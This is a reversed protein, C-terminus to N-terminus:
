AYEVLRGDVLEFMRRDIPEDAGGSQEVIFEGFMGAFEEDGPALLAATLLDREPIGVLIRGPGLSAQLHAATSPLLIRVADLGDGTESSVLRRQGSAEDTWPATASWGAPPWSSSRTPSGSPRRSPTRRSSSARM